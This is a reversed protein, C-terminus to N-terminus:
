ILEGMAIGAADAIKRLTQLRSREPHKFVRSIVSPAVGLTHAIDSQKISRQKCIQKLRGLAKSAPVAPDFDVTEASGNKVSALFARHGDAMRRFGEADEESSVDEAAFREGEWQVATSASDAGTGKTLTRVFEAYARAFRLSWADILADAKQSQQPMQNMIAFM